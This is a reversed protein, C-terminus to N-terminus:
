GVGVVVPGGRGGKGAPSRLFSALPSCYRPLPPDGPGDQGNDQGKDDGPRGIIDQSDDGGDPVDDDGANQPCCSVPQTVDVAGDIGAAISQAVQGEPLGEAAEKAAATPLELSHKRNEEM